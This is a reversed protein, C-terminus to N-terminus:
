ENGWQNQLTYLTPMMLAACIAENINQLEPLLNFLDETKNKGQAVKKIRDNLRDYFGDFDDLNSSAKVHNYVPEGKEFPNMGLLAIPFLNEQLFSSGVVLAMALKADDGDVHSPIKYFETEDALDQMSDLYKESEESTQCFGIAILIDDNDHQPQFKFPSKMIYFITQNRFLRHRRHLRVNRGMGARRHHYHYPYGENNGTNLTIM